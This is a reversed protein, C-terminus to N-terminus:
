ELSRSHMTLAEISLRNINHYEQASSSVAASSSSPAIVINHVDELVGFNIKGFLGFYM